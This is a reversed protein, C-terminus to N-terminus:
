GHSESVYTLLSSSSKSGKVGLERRSGIVLAEAIVLVVPQGPGASGLARGARTARNDPAVGDGAGAVRLREAVVGEVPQRTPWRAAVAVAVARM